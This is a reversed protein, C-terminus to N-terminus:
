YATIINAGYQAILYRLCEESPKVRDRNHDVTFLHLLLKASLKRIGFYDCLISVMSEHSIGERVRM